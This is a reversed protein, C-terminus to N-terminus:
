EDTLLGQETFAKVNSIIEQAYVWFYSIKTMNCNRKKPIDTNNKM